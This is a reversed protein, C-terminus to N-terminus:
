SLMGARWMLTAILSCAGLLLPAAMRPTQSQTGLFVVLLSALATFGLIKWRQPILCSAVEWASFLLLLSGTNRLLLSTELWSGFHHPLICFFEPKMLVFWDFPQELCTPPLAHLPSRARHDSMLCACAGSAAAGVTKRVLVFSRPSIRVDLLLRSQELPNGSLAASVAAADPDGEGTWEVRYLSAEV